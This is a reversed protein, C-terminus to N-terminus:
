YGNQKGLLQKVFMIFKEEGLLQGSIRQKFWFWGDSRRIPVRPVEYRSTNAPTALDGGIITATQCHDQAVRQVRADYFGMPYAFHVPSFGLEASLRDSSLTIEKAIDEDSLKLLNPHSHTHLGITILPDAAVERLQDWTMPKMKNGAKPIWREALPIQDPEDIFRTPVFLTAPLGYKKLVPWALTYFDEYADDFTLVYKLKAELVGETLAQIADDYSIVAGSKALWAMQRSFVGLPLDLEMNLDGVVRHYMLISIAETPPPPLFLHGYLVSAAKLLDRMKFM